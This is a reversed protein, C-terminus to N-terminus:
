KLVNFLKKALLKKWGNGLIFRVIYGGIFGEFGSHTLRLKTGNDLPSLEWLVTTSKKLPGGQWTYVLRKNVEFDIVKCTVSGDFGLQKPAKFTFTHGLELKFDNPMLWQSLAEQTAIAQWVKQPSFPYERELQIQKTM